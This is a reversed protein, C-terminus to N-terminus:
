VFVVYKKSGNSGLCCAGRIREYGVSIQDLGM